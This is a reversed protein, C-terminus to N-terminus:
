PTNSVTRIVIGPDDDRGHWAPRRARKLASRSFTADIILERSSDARALIDGDPGVVFSGGAFTVAGEVGTRNALAVYIGYVQATSRAMREWADASRFDGHEGGEWVGRGPAAAMVILADIGANALAYVLGPHWFDECILLGIRWHAVHFAQVTAGRAFYRAEDFMGYTPLYVKRHTHIVRGNNFAVASNYLSGDPADEILGALVTLDGREPLQASIETWQECPLALAAAHDRVDYGTISLEPTVLLHPQSPAASAARAIAEINFVPDGLRPAQQFLAVRLEDMAPDYASAHVPTL